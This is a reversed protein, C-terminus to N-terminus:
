ISPIIIILFVVFTVISYFEGNRLPMGSAPSLELYGQVSGTRRVVGGPSPPIPEAKCSVVQPRGPGQGEEWTITIIRPFTLSPAQLERLFGKEM